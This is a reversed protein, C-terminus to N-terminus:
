IAVPCPTGYALGRSKEMGFSSMWALCLLLMVPYFCSIFTMPTMIGLFYLMTIIAWTTMTMMPVPPLQIPFLVSFIRMAFHEGSMAVLSFFSKSSEVVHENQLASVNYDLISNIGQSDKLLSVFKEIIPTIISRDKDLLSRENLDIICIRKLEVASYGYIITNKKIATLEKHLEPALARSSRILKFFPFENAAIICSKNNHYCELINAIVKEIERMLLM